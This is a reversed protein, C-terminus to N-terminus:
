LVEAVGSYVLYFDKSGDPAVNPTYGWSTADIAGATPIAGATHELHIPVLGAKSVPQIPLLLTKSLGVAITAGTGAGASFEVGTIQSFFKTGEATTATQPISISETTEVGNKDLGTITATAGADAPTSGATTITVRRPPVLEADAVTGDLDAAEYTQVGTSTAQATLIVANGQAVPDTFLVEILAPMPACTRKLDDRLDKIERGWETREHHPKIPRSNSLVSSGITVSAAM